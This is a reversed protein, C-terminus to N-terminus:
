CITSRNRLRAIGNINRILVRGITCTNFVKFHIFRIGEHAVIQFPSDGNRIRARLRQFNPIKTEREWKIFKECGSIIIGDILCTDNRMSKDTVIARIDHCLARAANTRGQEHHRVRRRSRPKLILVIPANLLM